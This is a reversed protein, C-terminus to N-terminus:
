VLTRDCKKPPRSHRLESYDLPHNDNIKSVKQRCSRRLKKEEESEKQRLTIERQKLKEQYKGLWYKHKEIVERSKFSLEGLLKNDPQDIGNQCKDGLWRTDLQTRYKDMEDRYENLQDRQWKLDGYDWSEQKYGKNASKLLQIRDEFSQVLADTTQAEEKADQALNKIIRTGNRIVKCATKAITAPETEQFAEWITSAYNSLQEFAERNAELKEPECKSKIRPIVEDKIKFASYAYARM